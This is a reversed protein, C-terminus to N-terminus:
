TIMNLLVTLVTTLRPVPPSGGGMKGDMLATTHHALGCEGLYLGIYTRIGVGVIRPKVTTKRSDLWVYPIYGGVYPQNSM